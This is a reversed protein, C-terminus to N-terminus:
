QSPRVLLVPVGSYRVVRDAVSGLVWRGIGSRGHSTMAVMSGPSASAADLIGSAADGHLILEEVVAVGERLLRERVGQLYASAASDVAESPDDGRLPSYDYPDGGFGHYDAATRTVRVLCVTLDLARAMPTVHTLVSEALPSGDLPAVIRALAGPGDGAPRELPHIVLLPNQTSHLVRDAVSGLFWRGM